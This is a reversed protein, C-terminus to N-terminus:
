NANRIAKTGDYILLLSLAIMAGAGFGHLYGGRYQPLIWAAAQCMMAIVWLFGALRAGSSLITAHTKTRTHSKADILYKLRTLENDICTLCVYGGMADNRIPLHERNGCVACATHPHSANNWERIAQEPTPTKDPGTHGCALCEVRYRFDYGDRALRNYIPVIWPGQRCKPCLKAAPSADRPRNPHFFGELCRLTNSIAPALRKGIRYETTM